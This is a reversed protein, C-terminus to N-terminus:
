EISVGRVKRSQKNLTTSQEVIQFEFDNALAQLERAEDIDAVKASRLLSILKRTQAVTVNLRM